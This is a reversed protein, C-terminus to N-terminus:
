AVAQPPKILAPLDVLMAIECIQCAACSSAAGVLDLLGLHDERATLFDGALSEEGAPDLRLANFVLAIARCPHGGQGDRGFYIRAL